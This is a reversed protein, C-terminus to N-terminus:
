CGCVCFLSFWSFMVESVSNFYISNHSSECLLFWCVVCLVTCGKTVVKRGEQEEWSRLHLILMRQHGAGTTTHATLWEQRVSKEVGREFRKWGSCCLDFYCMSEKQSNFLQFMNLKVNKMKFMQDETKSQHTARPAKLFGFRPGMPLECFNRWNM